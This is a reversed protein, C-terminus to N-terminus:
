TPWRDAGPINELLIREQEEITFLMQWLQQCDAPPESELSANVKSNEELVLACDFNQSAFGLKLLTFLGNGKFILVLFKSCLKAAQEQV